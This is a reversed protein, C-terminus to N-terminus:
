RRGSLLLGIVVGVAFLSLTSTVPKKEIEDLVAHVGKAAEERFHEASHKARSLTEEGAHGATRELTEVLRAFDRRLDKLEARLADLDSQQGAM